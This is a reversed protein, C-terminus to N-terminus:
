ELRRQLSIIQSVGLVVGYESCFVEVCVCGIYLAQNQEQGLKVVLVFNNEMEM